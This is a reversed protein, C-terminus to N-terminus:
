AAALERRRNFRDIRDGAALTRARGTYAPHCKSCVDVSIEEATSRLDFTTGCTSCRVDILHLNPHQTMAIV